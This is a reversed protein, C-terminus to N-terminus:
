FTRTKSKYKFQIRSKLYIRGHTHTHKYKHSKMNLSQNLKANLIGNLYIVSNFEKRKLICHSTKVFVNESCCDM